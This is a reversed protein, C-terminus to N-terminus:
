SHMRGIYSLMIVLAIFPVLAMLTWKEAAVLILQSVLIYFAYLFVTWKEMKYFGVMCILGVILSAIIYGISLASYYRMDDSILFWGNVINGLLLYFCVLTILLPRDQMLSENQYPEKQKIKTVADKIMKIADAKGRNHLIYEITQLTEPHFASPDRLAQLLEEDTLQNMMPYYKSEQM